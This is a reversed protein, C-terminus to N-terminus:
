PTKRELLFFVEGPFDFRRASLGLEETIREMSVSYGPIMCKSRGGLSQSPFSVLYWRAGFQGLLKFGSGREQRELTPLTKLLMVLDPKVHPHFELLDACIGAPNKGMTILFQNIIKVLRCDMELPVYETGPELGMWPLAFPHLGCALDMVSEVIGISSFIETYCRDMIDIRERTSAHLGLVNLCVETEIGGAELGIVLRELDRYM